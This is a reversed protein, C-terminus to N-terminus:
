PYLIFYIPDDPCLQLILYMYMPVYYYHYMYMYYILYVIFVPCLLFQIFIHSLRDNM